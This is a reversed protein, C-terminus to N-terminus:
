GLVAALYTAYLAGNVFLHWVRLGGNLAVWRLWFAAVLTIVVGLLVEKQPMWPTLSIGIAPLLTGQFVMAGTINGFALTDKRKRIWLISNVKEPLETAIPIIMLSLLLASIGLIPAALEVGHIFGKAGAVLLGLGLVLQLLIVFLNQPLGLRTLLMNSGAETAHGNEVLSASANLTLMVYVFYIMVMVFALAGRVWGEGHPVFMAVFALLFAMLFFDLDRKLGSKEPTLAGQIGRQKLVALGVLSLSLTSLMLPAGLIAGVGIEENTATNGTGSFIALLPVLTEPMATGIAAFLSGTVGESIHLKEGLHELANVFVEAAVLILLLYGLLELFLM